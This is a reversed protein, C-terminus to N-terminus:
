QSINSDRAIKRLSQLEKVEADTLLHKFSILELIRESVAKHEDVAKIGTTSM